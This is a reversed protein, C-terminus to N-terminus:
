GLGVGKGRLYNIPNVDSGYAASTRAEFHLHPGTSNGTSGVRGIGQGSTVSQGVNVDMKSLHGYQTFKGDNHKVVINNGYAGGWGAEVVTGAGATKVPTGEAAAFDIGSHSGSSWMAGGSNYQTTVNGGKVPSVFANLKARSSRDSRKKEGREKAAKKEADAKKKDKADKADKKPADAKKEAKKESKEAPKEAKKEAKESKEAKKPADAKAAAAEDQVDAEDGSDDSLPNAAMAQTLGTEHQATATLAAAAPAALPGTIAAVLAVAGAAGVRNRQTRTLSFKGTARNFAM